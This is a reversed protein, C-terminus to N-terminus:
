VRPIGKMYGAYERRLNFKFNEKIKAWKLRKKNENISKKIGRSM